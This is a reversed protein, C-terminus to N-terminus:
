GDKPVGGAPVNIHIDLGLAAPSEGPVRAHLPLLRLRAVHARVWSLATTASERRGCPLPTHPVSAAPKVRPLPTLCM